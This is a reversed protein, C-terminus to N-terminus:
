KKGFVFQVGKEALEFLNSLEENSMNGNVLSANSFLAELLACRTKGLAEAEYDRGKVIALASPRTQVKPAADDVVIATVSEGTKGKFEWPTLTLSAVDGQKVHSYETGKKLNMWVGNIKLSGAFKTGIGEVVGTVVRNTTQNSM